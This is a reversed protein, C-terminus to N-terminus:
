KTGVGKPPSGRKAIKNKVAAELMAVMKKRSGLWGHWKDRSLTVFACEAGRHVSYVVKLKNSSLTLQCRM